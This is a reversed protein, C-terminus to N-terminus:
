IPNGDEDVPIPNGEADVYGGEGDEYIEIPEMDEEPMPEEYVGEQGPTAIGGNQNGDAINRNFLEDALPSPHPAKGIFERIENPTLIANRTFLDATNALQEVPLANFPDRYYAYKHGQTRATKTLFVRNFGDVLAQLIPDICRNYYLNLEAPSATGNMITETIGVENFFDQQIKRIDDLLNNTLGGSAPIFKENHELTAIGYRSNSMETEIDKKRRNAQEQRRTSNTQYPLQLFGNIKGSAANSDQSNMVKMKQQLLALNPNSDRLVAYLPSEIIAVKDKPMVLDQELGTRDNYVSVKVSRPYWEVIKGVRISEIDYSSTSLPNTATDIPVAAIVGEDLLSWILDYIFARGSQDINAEFTIRDIFSSQISEQKNTKPDTKTHRFEVTSADLAIRSIVSKVIDAKKYSYGGSLYHASQKAFGGYFDDNQNVEWLSGANLTPAKDFLNWSHLLRSDM